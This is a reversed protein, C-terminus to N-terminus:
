ENKEQEPEVSVAPGRKAVANAGICEGGDRDEAEEAEEITGVLEVTEARPGVRICAENCFFGDGAIWAKGSGPGPGSGPVLAKEAGEECRLFGDKEEIRQDEEREDQDDDSPTAHLRGHACIGNSGAEHEEGIEAEVSTEEGPGAVERPAIAIDGCGDFEDSKEGNRKQEFVATFGGWEDPDGANEEEEGRDENLNFGQHEPEGELNILFFSEAVRCKDKSEASLVYEGEGEALHAGPAQGVHRHGLVGPVVDVDGGPVEQGEEEPTDSFRGAPNDVECQGDPENGKCGEGRDKEADS